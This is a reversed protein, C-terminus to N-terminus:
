RAAEACFIEFRTLSSDKRDYSLTCTCTTCEHQGLIVLRLVQQPKVDDAQREQADVSEESDDPGASAADRFKAFIFSELGVESLFLQLQDRFLSKDVEQLCVVDANYGPTSYLSNLPYKIFETRFMRAGAIEKFILNKRYSM